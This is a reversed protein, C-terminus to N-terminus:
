WHVDYSQNISDFTRGSFSLTLSGAAAAAADGQVGHHVLAGPGVADNKRFLNFYGSCYKSSTVRLRFKM